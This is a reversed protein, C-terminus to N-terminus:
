HIILPNYLFIDGVGCIIKDRLLSLCASMKERVDCKLRNPISLFVGLGDMNWAAQTNLM